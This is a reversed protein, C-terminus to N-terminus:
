SHRAREVDDEPDGERRAGECYNRKQQTPRVSPFTATGDPTPCLMFMMALM